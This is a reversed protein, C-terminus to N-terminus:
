KTIRINQVLTVKTPSSQSTFLAKFTYRGAERPNILIPVDGVKDFVTSEFLLPPCTFQNAPIDGDLKWGRRVSGTLELPITTVPQLDVVWVAVVGRDAQEDTRDQEFLERDSFTAPASVPGVGACRPGVDIAVQATGLQSGDEIQEDKPLKFGAPVSLTVHALEEEDADQEVKMMLEPNAKVKNKSLSFSVTPTFEIASAAGTSLGLAVLLLMAVIAM